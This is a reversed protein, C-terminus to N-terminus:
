ICKSDDFLNAPLGTVGLGTVSFISGSLPFKEIEEPGAGFIGSTVYLTDYKPGGFCCSTPRLVPVQLELLKEGTVPDWRIINNKGFTGAVWLKGESDSCLGDPVGLEVNTSYDIAVRQNSIAPNTEDFDFSYIHKPPLSETFYLTKGDPSWDLGNSMGIGPLHHKISVGDYSYLSGIKDIHIPPTRTTPPCMTGGWFRGLRDCKCDNFFNREKESEVSILEKLVDGNDRNIICLKRGLTVLLGKGSKCPIAISPKEKLQLKRNISSSGGTEDLSTFNVSMGDIDVWILENAKPDYFLAEGLEAKAELLVSVTPTAM